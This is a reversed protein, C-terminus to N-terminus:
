WDSGPTTYFGGLMGNESFSINEDSLALETAYPIFNVSPQFGGVAKSAYTTELSEVYIYIINKTKGRETIEVDAPDTYHEEYIETQQGQAERWEAIGLVDYCNYLSMVFVALCVLPLVRRSLKLADICREKRLINASLRVTVRRQYFVFVAAAYVALCVLAAPVCEGIIDNIVSSSTGKLPSILTHLLASFDMDYTRDLWRSVAFVAGALAILVGGATVAAARLVTRLINKHKYNGNDGNNKRM